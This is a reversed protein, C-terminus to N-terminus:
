RWWIPDTHQRSTPSNSEQRNATHEAPHSAWAETALSGWEKLEFAGPFTSPV